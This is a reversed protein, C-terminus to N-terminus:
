GRHFGDAAKLTFGRDRDDGFIRRAEAPALSSAREPRASMKRGRVGSAQGRIAFRPIIASSTAIGPKVEM